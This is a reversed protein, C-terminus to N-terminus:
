DKKICKQSLFFPIRSLSLFTRSAPNEHFFLAFTPDPGGKSSRLAFMQLNTAMPRENQKNIKRVIITLRNHKLRVMLM